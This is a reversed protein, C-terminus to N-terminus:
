VVVILCSSTERQCGVTIHSTSRKRDEPRSLHYSRLLFEFYTNRMTKKADKHQKNSDPAIIFLSVSLSASKANSRKIISCPFFMNRTPLTLSMAVRKLQQNPVLENM